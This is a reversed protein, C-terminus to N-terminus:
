FKARKGSIKGLDEELEHIRKALSAVNGRTSAIEEKLESSLM